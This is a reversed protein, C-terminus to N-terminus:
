RLDEVLPGVEFVGREPDMFHLQSSADHRMWTAKIKICQVTMFPWWAQMSTPTEKHLLITLLNRHELDLCSCLASSSSCLHSEERVASLVCVCWCFHICLQRISGPLKGDGWCVSDWGKVTLSGRSNVQSSQSVSVGGLVCLSVNQGSKQRVQLLKNISCVSRTQMRKQGGNKWWGCLINKSM